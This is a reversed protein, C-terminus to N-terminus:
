ADNAPAAFQACVTRLVDAAAHPRTIARAQQAMRHRQDPHALLHRVRYEVTVPDIAKLAVGQEVLYDANHEEQGPIPANIVMPLAAALCEASTLGGSKTVILDACAMFREVHATHGHVVFRQGARAAIEALQAQLVTNRGSLAILQLAPDIALIREALEVLNGLGAGGGMLLVTSRAPDLGLQHACQERQPMMAFAPMVPLGTVHIREAAVGEARLRFAIEESGVFYGAVGPQIWIRHADYDTIQVWVPCSFARKAPLHALLEAPLFHTCIIMDPRVAAIKRLLARTLMREVRRRVSQTRDAPQVEQMHQYLWGWMRPFRAVMGIYAETYVRRFAAPVFQLADVHLAHVPLTTAAACLAQAARVHGGGASVSLVLITPLASPAAQVVVTEYSRTFGAGPAIMTKAFGAIERVHRSVRM